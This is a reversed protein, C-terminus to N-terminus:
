IQLEIPHIESARKQNGHLKLRLIMKNILNLFKNYIKVKNILQESNLM